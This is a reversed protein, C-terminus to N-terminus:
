DVTDPVDQRDAERRDLEELNIDAMNNRYEFQGLHGVEQSLDHDIYLDHGYHRLKAFLFVDEGIMTYGKEQETWYTDFWPKPVEKFIETKFLCCGLGSSNVKELGTSDLSTIVKTRGDLATTNSYAPTARQVYNAGVIDKQHAWLRHFTDMPFVMDSDLFLFYDSEGLVASTVMSERIMHILSGRENVVRVQMGEIVPQTFIMGMMNVLSMMFDAKVDDYSPVLIHLIM